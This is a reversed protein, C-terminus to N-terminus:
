FSCEWWSVSRAFSREELQYSECSAAQMQAFVSKKWHGSRAWTSSASQTLKQCCIGSMEAEWRVLLSRQSQWDLSRSMVLCVTEKQHTCHLCWTAKVKMLPASVLLCPRIALSRASLPPLVLFLCRLALWLHWESRCGLSHESLPRRLYCLFLSCPSDPHLEIPCRWTVFREQWEAHTSPDLVQQSGDCQLETKRPRLRCM